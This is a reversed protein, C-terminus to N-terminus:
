GVKRFELLNFHDKLSKEACGKTPFKQSEFCGLIPHNKVVMWYHVSDLGKHEEVEYSAPIYAIALELRSNLQAIKYDQERKSRDMVDFFRAVEEHTYKIRNFM